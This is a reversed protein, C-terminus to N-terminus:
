EGAHDPLGLRMANLDGEWGVGKLAEFAQVQKYRRIYLRLAAEVAAEKTPAGGLQLAEAMLAEDIEIHLQM